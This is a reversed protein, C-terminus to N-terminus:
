HALMAYLWVFILYASAGTIWMRATDSAKAMLSTLLAVACLLLNIRGVTQLMFPLRATSISELAVAAGILLLMAESVLLSVMAIRLLSPRYNIQIQRYRWWAAFTLLTPIGWLIVVVRVEGMMEAHEGVFM